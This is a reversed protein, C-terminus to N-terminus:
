IDVASTASTTVLEVVRKFAEQCARVVSEDKNQMWRKPWLSHDVSSLYSPCLRPCQYGAPEVVDM